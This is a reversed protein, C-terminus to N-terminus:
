AVKKGARVLTSPFPSAPARDPQASKAPRIVKRVGETTMGLEKALATCAETKTLGGGLRRDFEACLIKVQNGVRWPRKPNAKRYAVLSPWDTPPLPNAVAGSAAEPVGWGWLKQAEALRVCLADVRPFPGGYGAYEGLWSNTIANCVGDFGQLRDDLWRLGGMKRVADISLMHDDQRLPRAYAKADGMFLELGKEHANQLKYLIENAALKMPWENRQMLWDRIDALRALRGSEDASARMFVGGSNLRWAACQSPTADAPMM